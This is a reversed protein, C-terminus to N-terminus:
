AKGKILYKTITPYKTQYVSPVYIGKSVGALELLENLLKEMEEEVEKDEEEDFYAWENVLQLLATEDEVGIEIIGDERAIGKYWTDDYAHFLVVRGIKPLEGKDTYRMKM